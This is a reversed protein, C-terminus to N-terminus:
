RLVIAPGRMRAALAGSVTGLSHRQNEPPSSTPPLRRPHPHPHPGVGGGASRILITDGAALRERAPCGHPLRPAAALLEGRAVRTSSNRTAACACPRPCSRTRRHGRASVRSCQVHSPSFLSKSGRSSTQASIAVLPIATHEIWPLSPRLEQSAANVPAQVSAPSDPISRRRSGPFGPTRRAHVTGARGRVPDPYTWLPRPPM